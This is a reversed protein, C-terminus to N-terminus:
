CCGGHDTRALPHFSKCWHNERTGMIEIRRQILQGFKTQNLEKDSGEPWEPLNRDIEVDPRPNVWKVFAVIKQGNSNMRTANGISNVTDAPGNPHDVIKLMHANEEQCERALMDEWWKRVTPVRPWGVLSHANQFADFYVNVLEPADNRTVPLLTLNPPLATM